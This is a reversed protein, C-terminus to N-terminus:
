PTLGQIADETFRAVAAVRLSLDKSRDAVGVVPLMHEPGAYQWEDVTNVYGAKVPNGLIYAAHAESPEEPRLVHDYYSRQWLSNGTSQKFRFGLAQKYRHVFAKLDSDEESRGEALLHIHDPMVCYALIEFSTAQAVPALADIAARAWLDETFIARRGHTLLVVHYRYGGIYDFTKLRPSSKRQPLRRQEHSEASLDLSRDKRASAVPRGEHTGEHSGPSTRSPLSQEVFSKTSLDSSRDKRPADRRRSESM